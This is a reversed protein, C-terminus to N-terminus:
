NNQEFLKLYHCKALISPTTFNHFTSINVASELAPKRQIQLLFYKQLLILVYLARCGPSQEILKPWQWRYNKM